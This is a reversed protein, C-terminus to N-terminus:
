ERLRGHLGDFEIVEWTGTVSVTHFQHQRQQLQRGLQDEDVEGLAFVLLGLEQREIRKTLHRHQVILTYHQGIGIRDQNIQSLLIAIPAPQRGIRNASCLHLAPQGGGRPGDSKARGPCPQDRHETRRVVSVFHDRVGM